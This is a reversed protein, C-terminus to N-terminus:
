AGPNQGRAPMARVAVGARNAAVELKEPPILSQPRGYVVKYQSQLEAALRELAGPVANSSLLDVRQGGSARPGESLVLARNRMADTDTVAFTGVTVAHLGVGARTM